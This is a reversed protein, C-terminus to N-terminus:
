QESKTTSEDALKKLEAPTLPAPLKRGTMQRSWTSHWRDKPPPLPTEIIKKQSDTVLPEGDSKSTVFALENSM